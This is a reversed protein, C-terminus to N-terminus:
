PIRYEFRDKGSSMLREAAKRVLNIIQKRIDPRDTENMTTWVPREEDHVQPGIDFEVISLDRRITGTARYGLRRVGTADPARMTVSWHLHLNTGSESAKSLPQIIVHMKPIYM